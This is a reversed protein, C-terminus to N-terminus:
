PSLKLRVLVDHLRDQWTPEPKVAVVLDTLEERAIKLRAVQFWCKRKQVRCELRGSIPSAASLASADSSGAGGAAGAAGAPDNVYISVNAGYTQSNIRDPWGQDLYVERFSVGHQRLVAAIQDHHNTFRVPPNIMSLWLWVLLPLELIGVLVIVKVWRNRRHDKDETLHTTHATTM